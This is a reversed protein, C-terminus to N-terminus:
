TSCRSTQKVVRCLAVRFKGDQSIDGFRGCSTYRFQSLIRDRFIVLALTAAIGRLYQVGVIVSELNSSSIETIETDTPNSMDLM